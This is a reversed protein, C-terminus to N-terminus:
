KHERKITLEEVYQQGLTYLIKYSARLTGRFTGTVKSKGIRKRYSVPVEVASIRQRAAKIQMEVTWGFNRDKMELAELARWTIARFPGLDTFSYSYMWKMLGGALLNGFVAQPLLAGQRTQGLIRSGIVLEADGEEIPAVVRGIEEPFDSFDGDIFVVVDPPDAELYALAKLCAAGYGREEERVVVAGLDRAVKGTQDDSGNDAVVVQRIGGRPLARLVMPLSAEENLAPIVVDVVLGPNFEEADPWWVGGRWCM